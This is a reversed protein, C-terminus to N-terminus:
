KPIPKLKGVLRAEAWDGHDNQSNGDDDWNCSVRLMLMRARRVDVDM